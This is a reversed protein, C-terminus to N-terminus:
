CTPDKSRENTPECIDERKAPPSHAPVARFSDKFWCLHIRVLNKVLSPPCIEVMWDNIVYAM